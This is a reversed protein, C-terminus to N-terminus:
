NDPDVGERTYQEIFRELQAKQKPTLQGFSVSHRRTQIVGNSVQLDSVSEVILNKLCFDNYVIDLEVPDDFWKEIGVYRFALGNESIDILHFPIACNLVALAGEKSKYRKHSRGILNRSTSM